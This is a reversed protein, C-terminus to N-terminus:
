VPLTIRANYNPAHCGLNGYFGTRVEVADATSEFIIADQGPVQLMRPADGLTCFEWSDLQLMWAVGKPCSRDPVVKVDGSGGLGILVIANFSIGATKTTARDYVVRSGLSKRLDGYDTYNMFVVDPRGGQLGVKVAADQLAEELSSASGDHRVGGLRVPDVSRVCGFFPTAGPASSPIWSDLGSICVGFDGARFLFDNNDYGAGADWNGGTKTLTGADLDLASITVTNDSSLAGSTGDTTSAALQMGVAFNVVDQPKTLTVVTSTAGSAIKGRAGGFNGFLDKAIDNSVNRTVNEIEATRAKIFAYEDRDSAYIAEIDISTLGYKRVRTLDFETYLGGSKAAQAAVFNASIGQNGGFWIPIHYLKGGFSKMKPIMALMPNDKFGVYELRGSPLAEKLAANLTTTTLSAM